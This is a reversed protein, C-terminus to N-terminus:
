TENRVPNNLIADHIKEGETQEGPSFKEHVTQIKDLIEIVHRLCEEYGAQNSESSPYPLINDLIFGCLISNDQVLVKARANRLIQNTKYKKM